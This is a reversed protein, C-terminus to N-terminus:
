LGIAIIAPQKETDTKHTSLGPTSLTTKTTARSVKINVEPKLIPLARKHGLTLHPECAPLM